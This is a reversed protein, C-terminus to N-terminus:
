VDAASSSRFFFEFRIISRMGRKRRRGLCGVMLVSARGGVAVGARSGEAEDEESPAAGAGVSPVWASATWVGCRRGSRKRFTAARFPSCRRLGPFRARDGVGADDASSLGGGTTVSSATASLPSEGTPVDPVDSPLTTPLSTPTPLRSLLFRTFPLAPPPAAPM